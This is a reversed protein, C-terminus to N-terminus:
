QLMHEMESRAPLQVQMEHQLGQAPRVAGLRVRLCEDDYSESESEAVTVLVVSLSSQCLLECHAQCAM